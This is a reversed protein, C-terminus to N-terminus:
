VITTQRDLAVADAIKNMLVQAGARGSIDPAPVPRLLSLIILPDVPRALPSRDPFIYRRCLCPSPPLLQTILRLPRVNYLAGITSLIVIAFISVVISDAQRILGPEEERGADGGEPAKSALLTPPVCWSWANLASVVPKM